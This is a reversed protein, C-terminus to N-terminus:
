SASSPTLTLSGTVPTNIGNVIYINTTYGTNLQYNGTSSLSVWTDLGEPFTVRIPFVEAIYKSTDYQDLIPLLNRGSDYRFPQVQKYINLGFTYQLSTNGSSVFSLRAGTTDCNGTLLTQGNGSLEPNTAYACSM